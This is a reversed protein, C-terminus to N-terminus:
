QGLVSGILEREGRAFEAASLVKRGEKQVELLGLFGDGCRVILASRPGDPTSISAIKLVAGPESDVPTEAPSTPWAEWVHIRVAGLTTEAGPWPNMARVRRWITEADNAWDIYGDERKLQPSYTALNEDQPTPQLRGGLWEPITRLLLDASLAALRESLEGASENAEIPLQEQSLIPGTDLGEDMLMISVGAVEDGALIANPIPSAGRHRPLLSPHVNLVGHKPLVLVEPPVLLGYAAVVMFDPALEQLAAVAEPDRLRAPQLVPLQADIAAQKVPGSALRQGRGSPKDPRTVVATVEYPSALLAQLSPLAFEPTGFFVCSEVLVCWCLSVM